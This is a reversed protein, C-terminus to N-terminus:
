DGAEMELFLDSYSHIAPAGGSHLFVIDKPNELKGHKVMDILGAMTKGTYVPDLILGEKEGLLMIAKNAEDTPYAYAKGYYEDKVIIDDDTVLNDDVDIVDKIQNLVARINERKVESPQSVSIGIVKTSKNGFYRLGMLLGAHTGCSGTGLFIHSPTIGFEQWQTILEKACHMYGLSGLGNSAGLPVVYPKKGENILEQKLTDVKIQVLEDDGDILYESAGMIKDMLYNGSSLAQKEREPVPNNLVIHSELGLKASASVTQRVHNSQIGGVTIITDANKALVDAFVYELKRTKNGGHALDMVDDRKVYIDPGGLFGSLNPMHYFSTPLSTLPLREVDEFRM